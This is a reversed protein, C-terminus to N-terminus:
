ALWPRPPVAFAEMAGRIRTVDAPGFAGEAQLRDVAEPTMAPRLDDPLDDGWAWLSGRTFPTYGTPYDETMVDGDAYHEWELGTPDKWYDFVQSGLIHRGIGWYHQWGRAQLHQNGQGVCDLDYTEFSVHLVRVEPGEAIAVSHHDAPESGRNLRFFGLMPRGDPMCQVDSPIIGFHRMYWQVTGDFDPRQLVVHGLKYIPTPRLPPRVPGNVRRKVQPTNVMEPASDVAIPEVAEVGHIFDIRMGFPDTLSIRRGGGPGDAATIAEGTARALTELDEGSRAALAFGVFADREGPQVAVVYPSPGHGRFYRTEGPGDVTLFGFDELFRGMQALDRRELILYQMADARVIPEPRPIEVFIEASM